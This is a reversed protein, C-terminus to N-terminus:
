GMWEEWGNRGDMGGMWEDWGNMGDMGGMWGGM